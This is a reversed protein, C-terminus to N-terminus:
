MEAKEEEDMMQSDRIILATLASTAAELVRESKLWTQFSKM